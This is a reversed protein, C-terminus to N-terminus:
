RIPDWRKFALTCAVNIPNDVNSYALDIAGVALPFANVLTIGYTRRDTTDLTYIKVDSVFEKYFNLTNSRNNVVTRQWGEIYRRTDMRHDSYFMFTVPDYVATYPVEFPASNQFHTYTRLSRQPLTCTHCKINVGGVSNYVSETSRNAGSTADPDIFGGAGAVGNPLRFEIEYRNPKMVGTQFHSLFKTFLTDSM